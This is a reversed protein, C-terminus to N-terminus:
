GHTPTRTATTAPQVHVCPQDAVRGTCAHPMQPGSFHCSSLLASFPPTACHHHAITYHHCPWGLAETAVLLFLPQMQLLSRRSPQVSAFCLPPVHPQGRRACFMSCMTPTWFVAASCAVVSLMGSTVTCACCSPQRYWCALPPFLSSKPLLLAADDVRPLWPESTNRPFRSTPVARLSTRWAPRCSSAPYFLHNPRAAWRPSTAPRPM